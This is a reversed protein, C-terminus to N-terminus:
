KWLGHAFDCEVQDNSIFRIATWGARRAGECNEEVDDVFLLEEAPLGIRERLLDFIQRQPKYLHEFGSIVTADALDFFDAFFERFKVSADAAMNTLIGIKLGQAKLARMWALTRENRYLFSSLDEELIQAHQEPTVTLGADAWIKGYMEDITMFGGDYDHRYRDYGARIADWPLGLEGALKRVREPLTVTTMVGGFDFVVAKM